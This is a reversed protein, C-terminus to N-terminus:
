PSGPVPAPATPFQFEPPLDPFPNQLADDLDDPAPSPDQLTDEPPLGQAPGLIQEEVAAIDLDDDLDDPPILAMTLSFQYMRQATNITQGRMALLYAEFTTGPDITVEVPSARKAVRNQRYWDIVHSIGIKQNAAICNDYFAIGTLTLEGIRDGFVYLYIDRGLTHLFQYSGMESVGVRTFIAKMQNFGGWEGNKGQNVQLLSGAAAEGRYLVVARGRNETGGADAFVIM